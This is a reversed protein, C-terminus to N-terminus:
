PVVELVGALQNAARDEAIGGIEDQQIHCQYRTSRTRAFLGLVACNLSAYNLKSECVNALRREFEVVAKLEEGATSKNAGLLVAINTMYIHYAKLDGESILKLYYDRSPLGLQMQDM